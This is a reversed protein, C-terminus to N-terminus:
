RPCKTQGGVEVHALVSDGTSPVFHRSYCLRCPCALFYQVDRVGLAHDSHYGLCHFRTIVANRSDHADRVSIATTIHQKQVKAAVSM